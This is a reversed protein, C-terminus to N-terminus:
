KAERKAQLRAPKDQRGQSKGYKEQRATQKKVPRQLTNNFMVKQGTDTNVNDYRDRYGIREQKLLFITFAPNNAKMGTKFLYAEQKLHGRRKGPQLERWLDFEDKLIGYKRAVPDFVCFEAILPLDTREVYADYAEAVEQRQESSAKYGGM